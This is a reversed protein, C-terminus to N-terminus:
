ICLPSTKLKLISELLKDEYTECEALENEYSTESFESDSVIVAAIKANWPKIKGQIHRLKSILPQRRFLSLTDFDKQVENHLETIRKRIYRRDFRLIKLEHDIM